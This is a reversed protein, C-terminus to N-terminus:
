VKLGVLKTHQKETETDTERLKATERQQERAVEQFTSAHIKGAMQEAFRLRLTLVSSVTTQGNILSPVETRLGRVHGASYRETEGERETETETQQTVAAHLIHSILKLSTLVDRDPVNPKIDLEELQCMPENWALNSALDDVPDSM